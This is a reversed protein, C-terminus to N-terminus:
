SNIEKKPQIFNEETQKSKQIFYSIHLRAKIAKNTAAKISRHIMSLIGSKTALISANRQTTDM